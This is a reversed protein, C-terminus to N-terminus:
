VEASAEKHNIYDTIFRLHKNVRTYVGPRKTLGCGEPSTYSMIGAQVLGNATRCVLPGGNDGQLAHFLGNTKINGWGLIWCESSASFEDKPGPLKMWDSQSHHLEKKLKILAIDNEYGTSLAKFHGHQIIKDIGVFRVSGQKINQLSHAKIWAMSRSKDPDLRKDFCSAATLVWQNNLISGGCRWNKKDNSTINLHVMWPWNGQKADHGGIISSRVEAGLLDGINHILVLVTLIKCFAM